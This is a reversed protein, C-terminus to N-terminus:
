NKPALEFFMGDEGLVIEGSFTEGVGDLFIRDLMKLNNPVPPFIHTLVVKGANAEQALAGVHAADMHYDLVDLILKAPKELGLRLLSDSMMNVLDFALVESVLIDANQAHAVLNDTKITDGTIIVINGRYEFRYGVAPSAPDHDVIFAYAKLGNHDFVLVLEDPDQFEIATSHMQGAALPMYLEGHHVNRYSVDRQYAKNFGDVVDIVGEPGFVELSEARGDLWSQINVEGLDGIHDSHYHTLLIGSLDAGPLKLMNMSRASGPGTDVLLFEGGAIVATCQSVRRDNAVPGGSGVLVVHMQDGELLDTRDYYNDLMLKDLLGNMDCSILAAFILILATLRLKIM